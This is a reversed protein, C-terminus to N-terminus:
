SNRTSLFRRMAFEDSQSQEKKQEVKDEATVHKKQLWDMSETKGRAKLWQNKVFNSQQEVRLVQKKQQAIAQGLRDVFHQYNTSLFANLGILNRESSYQEAYEELQNLKEKETQLQTQQVALRKAVDSEKQKALNVLIQMRASKKM